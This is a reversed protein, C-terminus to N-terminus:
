IREILKTGKKFKLVIGIGESESTSQLIDRVNLQARQKKLDQIM